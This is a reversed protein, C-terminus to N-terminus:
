LYFGRDRRVSFVAHKLVKIIAFGFVRDLDMSLGRSSALKIRISELDVVRM